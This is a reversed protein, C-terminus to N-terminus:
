EREQEFSGFVWVEGLAQQKGICDVGGADAPSEVPVSAVEAEFDPDIKLAAASSM